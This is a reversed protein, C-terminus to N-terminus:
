GGSKAAAYRNESSVVSDVVLFPFFGLFVSRGSRSPDPNPFDGYPWFFLVIEALILGAPMSYGNPLDQGILLKISM